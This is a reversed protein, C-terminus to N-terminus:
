ARRRLALILEVQGTPQNVERAIEIPTLGRDALEFVRTHGAPVGGEDADAGPEMPPAHRTPRDSAPPGSRPQDAFRRGTVPAPPDGEQARERGSGEGGAELRRLREDAEAILTELRVAKNELQAALRQTLETADAMLTDISQREGAAQRVQEIRERPDESRDALAARNAQSKRLLRLSVVILVLVGFAFLFQQAIPSGGGGGPADASGSADQAILPRSEQAVTWTTQADQM